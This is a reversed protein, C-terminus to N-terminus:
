DELQSAAANRWAISDAVSLDATLGAASAVALLAHAQGLTAVAIQRQVLEGVHEPAVSADLMTAAHELLQEAALYHEAGTM